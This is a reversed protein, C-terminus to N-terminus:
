DIWKAGTAMAIFSIKDTEEDICKQTPKGAGHGAKKEIRIMLPNPNNRAVYQLQAIFKLSHLPVVRDDHDSTTLLVSPYPKASQINHLPSYKYIYEFDEKKEPDGYDSKWAYGVTFKHFRLMDLVGVDSVAAGFLEPAQNISAGILLGGNSAGNIALKKARTYKNTILWKAVAQFDDFVNQKKEFIGALHWEEGYELGGRLNAVAVIGNYHQIFNIWTLSFEPTLSSSFGGYGYLFTPNEEDLAIDKRSVLFVPIKTSDKSEIFVQKTELDETKLGQVKTTRFVSMSNDLFNYHYIIGPNLFGTFKFFFGTDEKRGAISPISGIPIDIDRIKKGTTLEHISIQEKVDHMYITVLNTEHVVLASTLVDVSHQPVLDTFGEDPNALDYKVVKCRPSNLNTKFYFVTGNNTLYDYEAEFKDVVKEFELKDKVKGESKELDAIWIKNVHECSRSVIMLVFRGDVSVEANFFLEPNEPDEHILVDDAQSTGIRHYYVERGKDEANEPKPYRTYFFGSDDHTFSLDSYKVWEVLDDLHGQGNSNTLKVYVTVWDSGSKSIGYAFYLGSKSFTCTSLAATGDAEITNPDFFMKPEDTLSAQQYLVSQPQLGTNYFYYYFEGRKFPCGYKEYDYMATLCKRFKERYEYSALHEDTIANQADVFAKTEESDPDELWRYPDAVRVGHLDEVLTEDRRV